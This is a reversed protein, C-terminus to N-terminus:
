RLWYRVAVDLLSPAVGDVVIGRASAAGLISERRPGDAILFTRCGLRAGPELDSLSDGAVASDAFDIDPFERQAELFMGTLPKRCGCQGDDHPCYYVADVGQGGATLENQMRRHIDQVATETMRGRAIGRQNTVVVLRVGARKLLGIAEKAGPLFEFEEWCTVYEPDPRKRNIVGDRDLFVTRMAAVVRDGSRRRWGAAGKTM